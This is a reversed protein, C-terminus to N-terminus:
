RRRAILILTGLGLLVFSGPEPLMELSDLYWISDQHTSGTNLEIWTMLPRSGQNNTVNVVESVIAPGGAAPFIQLNITKNFTGPDIFYDVDFKYWTDVAVTGPASTGTVTGEAGPNGFGTWLFISDASSFGTSFFRDAGGGAADLTAFLTMSFGSTDALNNAADHKGYWTIRGDGAAPEVVVTTQLHSAGDADTVRVVNPSSIATADAIVDYQTSGTWGSQGNLDIPAMYSDFDDILAAGASWGILSAFMVSVVLVNERM